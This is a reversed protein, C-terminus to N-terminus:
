NEDISDTVDSKTDEVLGEIVIAPGRKYNYIHFGKFHLQEGVKIYKNFVKAANKEVYMSVVNGKKDSIYMQHTIKPTPVIKMIDMAMYVYKFEGENPLQMVQGHFSINKPPIISKGDKKHPRNEKIYQSLNVYTYDEAIDGAFCVQM